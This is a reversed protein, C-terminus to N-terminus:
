FEGIFFNPLLKINPYKSKLDESIKQYIIENGNKITLIIYDPNIESIEEPSYIKYKGIYNGQISTNRDIIGLINKSKIKYKQIYDKLFNSAGWLMVKKHKKILQTLKFREYQENFIPYMFKEPCYKLIIYLWKLTVKLNKKKFAKKHCILRKVTYKYLNYLKHKKAFKFNDKIGNLFGMQRTETWEVEKHSVRYLYVSKNIAYFKEALYMAKVFFPPDQFRKYNPFRLKNEILFEREYIYRTYGYDYQFDKYYILENEKSISTKDKLEEKIGNDLITINGRCVKVNNEKAANYLTELALDDPYLDDPDMFAIFEGQAKDIAENRTYGVGKNKRHFVRVRSDKKAYNDLIEASNDTSGDNICILEIDKLTQNLISNLCEELYKDVNYVPIIVSIKIKM